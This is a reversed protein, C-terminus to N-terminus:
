GAAGAQAPVRIGHSHRAQGMGAMRGPLCSMGGGGPRAAGLCKGARRSRRAGRGSHRPIVRCQDSSRCCNSGWASVPSAPLSAGPEGTMRGTGDACQTRHTRRPRQHRGGAPVRSTQARRRRGRGPPANRRARGPARWPQPRGLRRVPRTPPPSGPRCSAPSGAGDAMPRSQPQPPTKPAPRSPTAAPTAPEPWSGM